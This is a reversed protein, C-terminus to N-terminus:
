RRGVLAMAREVFSLMAQHAHRSLASRGGVHLALVGTCDRRCERLARRDPGPANRRAAGGAMLAVRGHADREVRKLVSAYTVRHLTHHRFAFESLGEFSSEGHRVILDRRLLAELASPADADLMALTQEWFVHGIVAALQLAATETPLWATSARRCCAALTTPVHATVAQRAAVHWRQGRSRDRRRRDVDQGARGHLVPQGRRRRHDARSAGRSRTWASCCSRRRAGPELGQRAAASRAAQHDRRGVWALSREVPRDRLAPEAAAHRRQGRLLHRMFDLTRADAWHLDDLVVVM